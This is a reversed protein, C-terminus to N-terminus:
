LSSMELEGAHILRAVLLPPPSCVTSSFQTKLLQCAATANEVDVRLDECRRTCVDMCADDHHDKHLDDLLEVDM